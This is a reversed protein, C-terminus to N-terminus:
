RRPGIRTSIEPQEASIPEVSGSERTSMKVIEPLKIAAIPRPHASCIRDLLGARVARLADGIRRIHGTRPIARDCPLVAAAVDPQKAAAAEVRSSCGANEIIKPFEIAALPRPDISGVEDILGPKIARLSHCRWGIRRSCSPVRDWPSIAASM